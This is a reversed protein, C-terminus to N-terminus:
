RGGMVLKAVEGRTGGTFAILDSVLTGLPVEYNGPM